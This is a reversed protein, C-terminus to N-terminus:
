VMKPETTTESKETFCVWNMSGALGLLAVTAV